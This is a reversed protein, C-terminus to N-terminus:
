FELMTRINHEMTPAATPEVYTILARAIDDLAYHVTRIRVLPRHFGPHQEEGLRYTLVSITEKSYSERKSVEGLIQEFKQFVIDPLIFFFGLCTECRRYINGKRIIQPILRKHVNAWNMGHGSNPVDRVKRGRHLDFYAQWNERYNGTIDISQVEIGIFGSPRFVGLPAPSYKQLIWDM